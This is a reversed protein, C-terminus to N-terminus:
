AEIVFARISDTAFGMEGQIARTLEVISIPGVLLLLVGLLDDILSADAGCIERAVTQTNRCTLNGLAARMGTASLAPVIALGLATLVWTTPDTLITAVGRELETIRQRIAPLGQTQIADLTHEIAQIRNRLNDVRNAWLETVRPMLVNFTQNWLHRYSNWWASFNGVYSGPAGWPLARLGEGIVVATRRNLDEIADLRDTHRTLTAKIPVLAATIKRPITEHNLTWLAEYIQESMDGLTGATRQVVEALQDLMLVLPTANAAVWRKLSAIHERAFRQTAQTAKKLPWLAIRRLLGGDSRTLWETIPLIVFWYTVVVFLGIVVAGAALAAPAVIWILAILSPTLSPSM